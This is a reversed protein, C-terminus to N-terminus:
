RILKLVTDIVYQINEDTMKTYIPLSLLQSFSDYAVPFDEPKFGYLEKYYSMLHLPIFHVSIGIKHEQMKEAFEDRNIRKPLRILYLHWAHQCDKDAKKPLIIDTDIFAKNYAEAISQRKQQFQNAKKLQALGLASLIDPMNYKYGAACVDYFWSPSKSNYRSWVNRDIGHLRLAEVKSYLEKNRCCLMGGEGTTITKTAYFSFATFDSELNGVYNGKYLTPFAHAADEIVRLNYKKTLAIIKDMECPLGAIHVPMVAKFTGTPYSELVKQLKHPCINMTDYDIDVFVPTARFYRIVEATAAFTNVPLLVKDNENLEIAALALHMAATASSVAFAKKCGVFKAFDQEFKLTKPGTTIWGTRLSDTVEEIEEEGIDPVAFPLFPIDTSMKHNGIWEM